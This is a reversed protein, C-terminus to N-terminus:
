HKSFTNSLIEVPWGNIYESTELDQIDVSEFEYFWKHLDTMYVNYTEQEFKVNATTLNYPTVIALTDAPIRAGSKLKFDNVSRIDM